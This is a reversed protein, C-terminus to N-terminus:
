ARGESSSCREGPEPRSRSRFGSREEVRGDRAPWLTIHGGNALWGDHYLGGVFMAMRPTGLPRWLEHDAGRAVALAGALRARVAFNSIALPGRRNAVPSSGAM